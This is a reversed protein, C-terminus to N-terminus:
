TNLPVQQLSAASLTPGVFGGVGYRYWLPDDPTALPIAVDVRSRRRGPSATPSVAHEGCPPDKMAFLATGSLRVTVGRQASRLLVVGGGEASVGETWETCQQGQVDPQAWLGGQLRRFFLFVGDEVSIGRLLPPPRAHQKCLARLQRQSDALPQVGARVSERHEKCVEPSLDMSHATAEETRMTLVGLVGVLERMRQEMEAPLTGDPEQTAAIGVWSQVGREPRESPPPLLPESLRVIQWVSDESRALLTASCSPALYPLRLAPPLAGDGCMAAVLLDHMSSHGVVVFNGGDDHHKVSVNEAARRFRALLPARSALDVPSPPALTECEVAHQPHALPLYSLLLKGEAVKSLAVPDRHFPLKALPSPSPARPHAKPHRYLLEAFGPEVRLRLDTAQAVAAGTQVPATYPSCYLGQFRLVKHLEAVVAAVAESEKRGEGSLQPDGHPAVGTGDDAGHSLLLVYQM